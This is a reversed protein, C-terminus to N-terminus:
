KNTRTAEPAARQRLKLLEILARVANYIALLAFLVRAFWPGRSWAIAALTMALASNMTLWIPPKFRSPAICVVLALLLIFDEVLFEIRFMPQGALGRRVVILAIVLLSLEPFPHRRSTVDSPPM